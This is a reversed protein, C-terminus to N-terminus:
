SCKFTKYGSSLLEEETEGDSQSYSRGVQQGHEDGHPRVAAHLTEFGYEHEYKSQNITQIEGCKIFIRVQMRRCVGSVATDGPIYLMYM